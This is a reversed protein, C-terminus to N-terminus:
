SSKKKKESAFESKQTLALNALYERENRKKGNAIAGDFLRPSSTAQVLFIDRKLQTMAFHTCGM